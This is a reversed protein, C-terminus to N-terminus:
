RTRRRNFILGVIVMAGLAALLLPMSRTTTEEEIPASTTVAEEAAPADIEAGCEQAPYGAVGCILGSDGARVDM